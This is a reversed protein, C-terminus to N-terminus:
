WTHSGHKDDDIDLAHEDVCKWHLTAGHKERQEVRQDITRAAAPRGDDVHSV